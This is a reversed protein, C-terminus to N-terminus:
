QIVQRLKENSSSPCENWSAPANEQEDALAELAPIDKLRLGHFPATEVMGRMELQLLALALLDVSLGLFDAIVGCDVTDDILTADGGEEQIRHSAAILFAALRVMPRERASGVLDEKRFAFERAVSDDYRTRNHTDNKILSGVDDLDFCRVTTEITARATAAHRALCGMGVVDGALAHEIVEITLDPRTRYICLAGTEVRYVQTKPDGAEFLIGNRALRLIPSDFGGGNLTVVDIGDADGGNDAFGMRLM